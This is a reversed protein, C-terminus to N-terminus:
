SSPKQRSSLVHGAPCTVATMWAHRCLQIRLNCLLRSVCALMQFSHVPVSRKWSMLIHVGNGQAHMLNTHDCYILIVDPAPSTHLAQWKRTISAWQLMKDLRITIQPKSVSHAWLQRYLGYSLHSRQTDCWFPWLLCQMIAHLGVPIDLMNLHLESPMVKERTLVPHPPLSDSM